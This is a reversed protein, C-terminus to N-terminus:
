SQRLKKAFELAEATITEGSIMRALETIKENESLLRVSSKGNTKSVLFHSAAKSSLQPQHSIAFIQYFKSIKVLVNAISMAEKGSLNSDIEDLILIGEGNNTLELSAAIFALRLRNTEGSSLNKFETKCLSVCIEDTGHESLVVPKFSLEVGDMYLQKLYSNILDELRKKTGKRAESIKEALTATSESLRKFEAQLKTKEFSLQEYHELEKKRAELTALAEEISGYRRNLASLAEIRDLIKEIDINELEDLSLSEQKLRLENMADEFFASDLGSLSLAEIVSRELEFVGQARAWLEEIKDKKSLKKKIQLLEEYEGIKPSVREIKEIEFRAFEKLEEIKREQDLIEDLQKKTRSFEAFASQLESLSQAHAADKKAAIFDLLKLLSDSSMEGANKAGLFKVYEGAITSLNKKSVSQSNIFYRLSREKLVRFTNPTDNILGFNGMDFQHEVDAEILEAECENLGFVALIAGILVSKGAGSIGTFVSLGPGFSLESECFGLNNKIYIRELM